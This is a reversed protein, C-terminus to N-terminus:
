RGRQARSAIARIQGNCSMSVRRYEAPTDVDHQRAQNETTMDTVINRIISQLKEHLVAVAYDGDVERFVGNQKLYAALEASIRPAYEDLLQRNVAIHKMEHGMVEDFGCTGQPIENAVYVTVNRYGVTVDVHDVHACALGDPLRVGKVPVRFELVPEYRTLGLTMGEHITHHADSALATIDAISASYDYSPEDFRPTINVPVDPYSDCESYADEALAPHAAFLFLWGLILFFKPM